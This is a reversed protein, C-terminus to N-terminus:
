SFSQLFGLLHNFFIIHDNAFTVNVSEDYLVVDVIALHPVDSM